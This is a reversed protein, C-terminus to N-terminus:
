KVIVLKGTHSLKGCCVTYIYVGPVFDRLDLVKQSETGHLSYTAVSKGYIDAIRIQAM